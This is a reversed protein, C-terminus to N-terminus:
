DTFKFTSIIQNFLNGCDIRGEAGTKYNNCELHFQYQTFGKNKVAWVCGETGKYPNLNKDLCLESEIVYICSMTNCEKEDLGSKDSQCFPWITKQAARGDISIAESEVKCTPAGGIDGFLNEAVTFKENNDKSHVYLGQDYVWDEPYKFEFISTKFTKWYPPTSPNLTPSPSSNSPLLNSKRPSLYYYGGIVLLTGVLIM